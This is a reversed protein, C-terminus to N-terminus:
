RNDPVPVSEVMGTLAAKECLTLTMVQKETSYMNELYYYSKGKLFIYFPMKNVELRSAQLRAQGLIVESGGQIHSM